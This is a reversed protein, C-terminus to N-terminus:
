RTWPDNRGQVPWANVITTADLTSAVRNGGRFYMLPTCVDDLSKKRSKERMGGKNERSIQRYNSIGPDLFKLTSRITSIDRGSNWEVRSPHLSTKHVLRTFKSGLLLLFLLFTQIKFQLPLKAAKRFPQSFRSGFLNVFNKCLRTSNRFLKRSELFSSDINKKKKWNSCIVFFIKFITGYNKGRAIKIENSDICPFSVRVRLIRALIGRTRQKRTEM